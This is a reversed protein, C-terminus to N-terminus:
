NKLAKDPVSVCVDIGKPAPDIIKTTVLLIPVDPRMSCLAQALCIGISEKERYDLVMAELQRNVFCQAIGQNWDSTTLPEYGAISITAAVASTDTTDGVICLVPHHDPM